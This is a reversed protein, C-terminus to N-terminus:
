IVSFFTKCKDQLIVSVQVPYDFYNCFSIQFDMLETTLTPTWHVAAWPEIGVKPEKSCAM